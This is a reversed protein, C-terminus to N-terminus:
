RRDDFSQLFAILDVLQRITLVDTYDGMASGGTDLMRRRREPTIGRSITHSPVLISTALRSTSLAAQVGGLDPGPSASIPAPLDPEAIVRHCYVCRLDSFTQRGAEADGLPVPVGLMTYGGQASVSTALLWVGFAFLSITRMSM